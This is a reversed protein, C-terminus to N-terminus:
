AVPSIAGIATACFASYILSHEATDIPMFVNKDFM